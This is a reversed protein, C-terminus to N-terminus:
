RRGRAVRATPRAVSPLRGQSRYHKRCEVERGVVVRKGAIEGSSATTVLCEGEAGDLSYSVRVRAYDAEPEAATRVDAYVATFYWQGRVTEIIPVSVYEWGGPRRREVTRLGGDSAAARYEEDVDLILAVHPEMAPATSDSSRAHRLRRKARQTMVSAISDQIAEARRRGVNSMGALRGDYAARELEELSDICLERQIRRALKRGIGPVISFLRAADVETRLTRLKEFTGTRLIEVIARTAAPSVGPRGTTASLDDETVRRPLSRLAGAARRFQGARPLGAGLREMLEAADDLLRAIKNNLRHAPM